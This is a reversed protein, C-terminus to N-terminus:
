TGWKFLYCTFIKELYTKNQGHGDAIASISGVFLHLTYMYLCICVSLSKYGKKTSVPVGQAVWVSYASSLLFHKSKQTSVNM